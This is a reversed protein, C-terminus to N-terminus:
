DPIIKGEADYTTVSVPNMAADFEHVTTTGDEHYNTTLLGISKGNKGLVAAYETFLRGNEYGRSGVSDGNENYLYEYRLEHTVNGDADYTIETSWTNELDGDYVTYTGDEYYDTTKGSRSWSSGDAEISHIYEMEQTLMGNTFTRKFICNGSLDYTNEFTYEVEVSGDPTYHVESLPNGFDDYTYALSGDDGYAREAIMEWYGAENNWRCEQEYTLVGDQYTQEFLRSGGESYTYRHDLETKEIADYYVTRMTNFNEDYTDVQHSGDEFYSTQTAMYVSGDARLLYEYSSYRFGNLYADMATFKGDANYVYNLREDSLVNGEADYYTFQCCDGHDNYVTIQRTGEEWVILESGCATCNVEQLTHAAKEVEEGCECLRWHSDFDCIWDSAPTHTHSEGTEPAPSEPTVATDPKSCASLLAACILLICFLNKKM